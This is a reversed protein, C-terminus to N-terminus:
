AHSLLSTEGARLAPGAAPTYGVSALARFTPGKLILQRYRNANPAECNLDFREWRFLRGRGLDRSGDTFSTELSASEAIRRRLTQQEAEDDALLAILFVPHHGADRGLSVTLHGWFESGGERPYCKEIEVSEREGECCNKSCLIIRRFIIQLFIIRRLSAGMSSALKGLSNARTREPWNM